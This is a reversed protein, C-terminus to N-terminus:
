RLFSAHFSTLSPFTTVPATAGATWAIVRVTDGVAFSDAVVVQLIVANTDSASALTYGTQVGNHVLAAERGGRGQGYPETVAATLLWLGTTDIVFVSPDTQRLACPGDPFAIFLSEPFEPVSAAAAQTADCSVLADRDDVSAVPNSQCGSYALGLVALILAPYRVV